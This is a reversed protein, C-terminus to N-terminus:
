VVERRSTRVRHDHERVKHKYLQAYRRCEESTGQFHIRGSWGRLSYIERGECIGAFEARFGEIYQTM